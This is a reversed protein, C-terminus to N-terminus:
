NNKRRKMEKKLLSLERGTQGAVSTNEKARRMLYPVVDKVPGYPLYKSVNYGAAALNFTLNDSMGYLQSFHLHPHGAPINKKMALDAAIRNSNENHSAVCFCIREINEFCFKVGANYDEDTNKKNEQIPSQYNLEIARRREKEMYAGRVLKAGLIYNGNQALSFSKKLYALRDHRYFQFTNLVVAKERNFESMMENTVDDITNQIWSEEADIMLAIGNEKASACADRVRSKAKQWEANESETLVENRDLKELLAFRAYGTIKMSAFPINRNKKAFSIARLIEQLNKEFNEETEHGEVGYDLITKVRFKALKDIATKCEELTEGGCFQSFITNKVIGNIPLHWKFLVPTVSTGFKVLSNNNMMTFLFKAKRLESNSKYSFAIATDDFSLPQSEPM